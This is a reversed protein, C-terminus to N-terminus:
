YTPRYLSRAKQQRYSSPESADAEFTLTSGNVEYWRRAAKAWAEAALDAILEFQSQSFQEKDAYLRLEAEGPLSHVVDLLRDPECHPTDPLYFSRESGAISLEARCFGMKKLIFRFDAWLHNGTDAREAEVILWNRLFVANRAEHRGQLSESLRGRILGFSIQQGRLAILIVVFAFGFFIPLFRGQYAFSLLGGLLAFLSIAYL